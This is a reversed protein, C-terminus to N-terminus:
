YSLKMCIGKKVKNKVKQEGTKDNEYFLFLFSVSKIHTTL